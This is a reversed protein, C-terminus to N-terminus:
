INEKIRDGIRELLSKKIYGADKADKVMEHRYKDPLSLKSAAEESLHRYKAFKDHAFKERRNHIDEASLGKNHGKKGSGVGGKRLDIEIFGYLSKTLSFIKDLMGGIDKNIKKKIKDKVKQAEPSEDHRDGLFNHLDPTFGDLVSKDYKGKEVGEQIKVFSYVEFARAFKETPIDLYAEFDEKTQIGRAEIYYQSNEVYIELDVLADVLEENELKSDSLMVYTQDGGESRDYDLAHGIEHFLSKTLSVGDNNFRQQSQLSIRENVPTGNDMVLNQYYIASASGSHMGDIDACTFDIPEKFKVKMETLVEEAAQLSRNLKRQNGRSTAGFGVRGVLNCTSNEPSEYPIHSPKGGLDISESIEGAITDGPIIWSEDLWDKPTLSNEREPEKFKKSEPKFTKHGVVGSGPGGKRLLHELLTRKTM